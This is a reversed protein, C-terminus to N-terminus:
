TKQFLLTEKLEAVSIDFHSADYTCEGKDILLLQPSEHHVSFKEAIYNSIPRFTLLDLYYCDLELDYASEFRLKTMQSISCTTSHKFLILPKNFSNQVLEDIQALENVVIWNIM